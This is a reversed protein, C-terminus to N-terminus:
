GPLPRSVSDSLRLYAPPVCETLWVGNDSRYFLYDANQMRGSDVALVVPSGHRAGVRIATDVDVSLHVHRREGRVLGANMISPLFRSATGHYLTDPPSMPKYGLDVEVSHGQSARIRDGHESFSFRRKENTAVVYELEDRTIAFGGAASARLLDAVSVWGEEELTLGISEPKHRLVLSLFKSIKVNRDPM